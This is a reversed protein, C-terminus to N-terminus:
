LAHQTIAEGSGILGPMFWGLMGAGAGIIAARVEVPLWALRDGVVLTGKITSNYVVGLLGM